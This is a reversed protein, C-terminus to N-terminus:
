CNPCKGLQADYRTGCQTCYRFQTSKEADENASLSSGSDNTESITYSFAETAGTSGVFDSGDTFRGNKLCADSSKDPTNDAQTKLARVILILLEGLIRCVIPGALFIILGITAIQVNGYDAFPSYVMIAAGGTISTFTATMCVFKLVKEIIFNKFNFIDAILGWFRNLKCRKKTPLLFIACLVGIIVSAIFAWGLISAINDLPNYVPIFDEYYNEYM